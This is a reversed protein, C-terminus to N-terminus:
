FASSQNEPPVASMSELDDGCALVDFDEIFSKENPPWFKRQDIREILWQACEMAANAIGQHFGEWPSFSVNDRSDGITIYGVMPPRPTLGAAAYLPLQLNIWRQTKGKEDTWFLRDDDALHSPIVTRGTVGVLHSQSVQKKVAGTKYDWLTFEGRQAHFDIRDVKGSVQMIRGPLLFPKEVDMVQWGEARHTAQEEALWELRQRLAAIQIQLALNPTDGYRRLILRHLRDHWVRTLETADALDRESEDRGWQELVEHLINGFDRYDWEGRDGDRKEMRLVNKLYFRYPCSLYDRFNTVSLTRVGQKERPFEVFRPQWQWDRHWTAQSDAPPLEAFLRAVREALETGHARLLLRSPLMMAGQDHSKSLIVDIAGRGRHAEIMAGYLYADRAERRADTNLGLILRNSANLWPEGGCAAPIFSDSMGCVLLHASQHFAIELWGEVDLARKEPMEMPPPPLRDCFLQLWLAADYGLREEWSVWQRLLPIMEVADAVHCPSVSQWHEILRILTACCGQQFFEERWRQLQQLALCLARVKDADVGRPLTDSALWRHIDDISEVLCQDRLIGLTRMWSFVSGGTLIETERFGAMETVVDLSPVRLWRMWHRLWVRWNLTDHSASPDFVPWGARELADAIPRGLSPDCTALTVQDSAHCRAAICEVAKEALQRMDTVVHVQGDIGNRGPFEQVRDCWADLPFGLDDFSAAEEQPAAILAIASPMRQWLQAVLPTSETVGILVLQKCDNPLNPALGRSLRDQLCVSRSRLSWVRLLDEVQQELLALAQWRPADAHASMRRAADRILLGAEQLHYRLEVMSQALHYSWGKGEDVDWEHPFAATYPSWDDISELVEMWALLEITDDAMEPEHVKIFYSPTVSRFGLMAKQARAAHAAVAERLRRGAQATPVVFCMSGMQDRHEWIWESASEALPRNWGLFIRHM